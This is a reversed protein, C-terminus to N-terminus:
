HPLTLTCIDVHLIYIATRPPPPIYFKGRNNESQETQYGWFGATPNIAPSEQPEMTLPLYGSLLSGAETDHRYQAAYIEHVRRRETILQGGNSASLSSALSVDDKQTEYGRSLM